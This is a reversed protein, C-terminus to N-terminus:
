WSAHNIVIFSISEKVLYLCLIPNIMVILMQAAPYKTPKKTRLRVAFNSRM